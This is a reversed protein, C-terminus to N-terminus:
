PQGESSAEDEDEAFVSLKRDATSGQKGMEQLHMEHDPNSLPHPTLKRRGAGMTANKKREVPPPPPNNTTSSARAPNSSAGGTTSLSSEQSIEAMSVASPLVSCALQWSGM